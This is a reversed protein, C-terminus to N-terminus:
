KWKHCKKIYELLKMLIARIFQCFCTKQLLTGKINDSIITMYLVIM